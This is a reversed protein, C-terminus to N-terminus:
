ALWFRKPGHIEECHMYGSSEGYVKRTGVFKWITREREPFPHVNLGREYIAEYFEGKTVERM